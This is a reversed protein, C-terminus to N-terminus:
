SEGEAEGIQYRTFRRIEIKEGMKASLQAILEMVTMSPDKVFPQELLCIDQFYKDLMGDIIREWVKEPKGEAECRARYIEKESAVIEEPVSDRDLYLPNCAAIHLAVQHAFELYESNRAVFDTECNIEVLSGIQKGIHLYSEIVGQDATKEQRKKASALGKERLLRIAKEIDGGTDTLAHKCDMMGAGTKVRLEKVQQASVECDAM